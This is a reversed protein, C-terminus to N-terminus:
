VSFASIYIYYWIVSIKNPLDAMVCHIWTLHLKTDVDECLETNGHETVNM